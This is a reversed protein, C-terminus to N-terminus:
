QAFENVNEISLIKNNREDGEVRKQIRTSTINQQM